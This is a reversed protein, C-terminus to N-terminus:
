DDDLFFEITTVVRLTKVEPSFPDRDEISFYGQQAKRIAGVRSGSDEAFQEAARRADRTAEAIMEPKAADLATFLFQTQMEYNRVVAVGKKVLEGVRNMMARTAAIDASRVVVAAQAQYRDMSENGPQRYMGERDNIQPLTTSIEGDAFSEALFARVKTESADLRSQLTELDDATVTYAIPWLALDAPVQRESLGKVTVFRDTARASYLAQSLLYGAVALGLGIAVGAIVGAFSRSHRSDTFPDM